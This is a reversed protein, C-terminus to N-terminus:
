GIQGGELRRGIVLYNVRFLYTGSQDATHELWYKWEIDTGSVKYMLQTNKFLGKGWDCTMIVTPNSLDAPVCGTLTGWRSQNGNDANVKESFSLSGWKLYLPFTRNILSLVQAASKDRFIHNGSDLLGDIQEGSFRLEYRGEGAIETVTDQLSTVTDSLAAVQQALAAIQEEATPVAAGGEPEAPTTNVNEEDM